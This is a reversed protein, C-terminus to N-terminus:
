VPASHGVAMPRDALDHGGAPRDQAEGVPPEGLEDRRERDDDGREAREGHGAGCDVISRDVVVARHGAGLHEVARAEGAGQHAERGGVPLRHDRLV